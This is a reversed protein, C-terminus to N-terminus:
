REELLKELRSRTIAMQEAGAIGLERAPDNRLREELLGLMEAATKGAACVIFIHGFRQEYARNGDALAALVREPAATAGRQEDQAWAATSAFRARVQELDGIRPHHSFAELWDDRDLAQAATEARELLEARNAFPRATCMADVWASSGCCRAFADRARDVPLANLEDLMM